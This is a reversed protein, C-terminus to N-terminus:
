TTSTAEDYARIVASNDAAGYGMREARELLEAHVRSLPLDADSALMLRVDKLHQSLRADPTFEGTLMKEGKIDMVRSHAPSAKLVALAQREDVGSHRAFALAEALVARHLGLALNMVLKMRAGSGPPGLHFCERAFTSLVPRARAWDEDSAGAMVIVDGARTQRSNGGVTADVYRFRQAFGAMEEPEGTTTDIILTDGSLHPELDRLVQQTIGSHPLSLLVIPQRACEAPTEVAGEFANRKATDIDYGAVDYGAAHLREGIASGLLGLGILGIRQDPAKSEVV